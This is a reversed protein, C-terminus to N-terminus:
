TLSANGPTSPRSPDASQSTVYSLGRASVMGVGQRKAGTDDQGSAEVRLDRMFVCFWKPPKACLGRM